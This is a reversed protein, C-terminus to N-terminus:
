PDVLGLGRVAHKVDKSLAKIHMLRFNPDRIEVFCQFVAEAKEWAGDTYLLM